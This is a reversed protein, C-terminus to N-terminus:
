FILQIQTRIAMEDEDGSILGLRSTRISDGFPNATPADENLFIVDATFKTRHGNIYYNIGFVCGDFDDEGSVDGDISFWQAFVEFKDPVIHLGGQVVLRVAQFM